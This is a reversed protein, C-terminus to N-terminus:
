LASVVSVVSVVSVLPCRRLDRPATPRSDGIRFISIMLISLVVISLLVHIDWGVKSWGLRQMHGM